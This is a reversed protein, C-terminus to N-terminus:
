FHALEGFVQFFRDKVTLHANKLCLKNFLPILMVFEERIDELYMMRYRDVILDFEELIFEPDSSSLAKLEFDHLAVRLGKYNIAVEFLVSASFTINISHTPGSKPNLLYLELSSHM